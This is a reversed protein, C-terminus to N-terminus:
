PRSPEARQQAQHLAEEVTLEGNLVSTIANGFLRMAGEFEGFRRLDGLYLASEMSARATMAIEAGVQQEYLASEAVSRRPPVLLPHPQRTLFKILEWCAEPADAQAYIAYGDPFAQTFFLEDRPLTTVGWNMTWEAPWGIGGRESLSGIWLGAKGQQVAVYYTNRGGGFARQADEPTPAAGYKLYLDTYWEVAEVTLPDDFATRTPEQLDDFLRGGRLYVFLAADFYPVNGAFGSALPVYGYIGADPDSIAAAAELFDNHTWGPQPYPLNRRDFLDRNYFMVLLDIGAPIGWTHHAISFLELTGPYFDQTELTQDEEVFPDLNLLYGQSQLTYLSWLPVVLVDIGDEGLEDLARWPVSRLEITIEPHQEDFRQLMSEYRGVYWEPYAFTLTVPEPTLALRACGVLSLVVLCGLIGTRVRM